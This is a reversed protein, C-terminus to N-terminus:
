ASARSNAEGRPPASSAADPGSVDDGSHWPAVKLLLLMGPVAAVLCLAYFGPYGLTEIGTGAWASALTRPVAIVSSFLAYQTATFQRNTARMAFASLSAMGLGMALYEVGVVATLWPLRRGVQALVSFGAIGVIQFAGFVWLARNVGLRLMAIGGLLAGTSTAAFGFVKVVSGIESKTFGLDMYFPTALAVALIDGLKYLLLFAVVWLVERRNPRAMFERFPGVVAEQLSRPRVANPAEASLWTGLVGLLMFAGMVWYVVMWPARDALQLGLGTTVLSAARYANIFLSNGLGLEDEQLCERRQADLVIDQTASVFAVGFTLLAIATLHRTPDCWGFASILLGLTVQSALAWGRRRGLWPLAYRDLVPAWLIKWTYPLSLLSFYGIEALGVGADRLWAQLLGTLFFPLGSSFGLLLCALMRRSCVVSLWARASM